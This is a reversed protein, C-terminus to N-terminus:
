LLPMKSPKGAKRPYKTPTQRFKRIIIINRKNDTYPLTIEKIIEIRGGLVDLAQKSNAIEDYCNKGKMAIFVGGLRVFPLCYELLVPLSALARATSVDFSERYYPDKGYDEARKHVTKINNLGLTRICEKLFLIKKETSDLLTIDLKEYVIKLPIGPLGGGTGIDILNVNRNELFPIISLSDIFHKIIIDKEEIVSTINFKENWIKILKM